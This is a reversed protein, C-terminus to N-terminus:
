PLMREQWEVRGHDTLFYRTLANRVGKGALSRTGGRSINGEGDNNAEDLQVQFEQAEGETPHNAPRRIRIINHLVVCCLTVTDITKPNEINIGRLLCQFRAALIGFCNEVIRRARSLRYNFIADEHDLNRRGYPKMLFTSLPFADDGIIFYPVDYGHDDDGPLVSPAPFGMEDDQVRDIFPSAHYLQGDSCSGPAGVEVYIFKYDGDCLAFLIKSFYKKYNFYESHSQKPRRIRVHKGDLAGLCHPLNWQRLFVEAIKLWQEPTDIAPMAENSYEKIIAQTVDKVILSITNPAVRFAYSLDLYSNGTALYRLTIAIKLGPDLAKRLITDKKTIKPGVKEVIEEFLVNDMRLFNRYSAGDERNLEVLLTEYQGYLPRRLLWQRTWVSRRKRNRRRSREEEERRIDHLRIELELLRLRLGIVEAPKM